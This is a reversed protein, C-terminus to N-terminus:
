RSSSRSTKRRTGGSARSGSAKGNKSARGNKSAKAGSARSKAREMREGIEELEQEDLLSRVQPFMTGEEEKVHHLVLEKLVQVKAIFTEDGPTLAAIRKLTDKVNAHEEYAEFIEQREDSKKRTAELVAPYFIKEEVSAHLTLAAKIQEFLKRRQAASGEDGCIQTFLEEVERHDRKLLEIADVTEMDM